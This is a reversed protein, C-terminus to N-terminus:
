GHGRGRVTNGALNKGNKDFIKRRGEVVRGRGRGCEKEYDRKRRSWGTQQQVGEKIYCMRM